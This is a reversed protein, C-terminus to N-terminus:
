LRAHGSRHNVGCDPRSCKNRPAAQGAQQCQSSKKQVNCAHRAARGGRSSHHASLLSTPSYFTSSQAEIPGPGNGSTHAGAARPLVPSSSARLQLQWALARSPLSQDPCSASVPVYCSGWVGVGHVTRRQDPEWVRDIASGRGSHQLPQAPMHRVGHFRRSLRPHDSDLFITRVGPSLRPEACTWM